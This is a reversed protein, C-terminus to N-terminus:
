EDEHHDDHDGRHEAAPDTARDGREHREGSEVEEEGARVSRERDVAAVVDLGRHQQEDDPEEDALDHHAGPAAPRVRGLAPGFHHPHASEGLQSRPPSDAPRKSPM